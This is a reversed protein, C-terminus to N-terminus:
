FRFVLSFGLMEKFQPRATQKPKGDPGTVPNNEDDLVTTKTDDDYILHTNLRIDTFWNLNYVALMEWDIDINLPNNIYSSFLHVRNTLALNTFPRYENTFILNAGLENRSKRNDPVGYLTQDIDSTDSVFTSKFSFPSFNVSTVKSPKYDLGLGLTLISPNM